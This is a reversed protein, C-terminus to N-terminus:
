WDWSPLAEFKIGAGDLIDRFVLNSGPMHATSLVLIKEVEM